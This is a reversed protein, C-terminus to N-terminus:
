LHVPIGIQRIPSRTSARRRLINTICFCRGATLVSNTPLTGEYRVTDILATATSSRFESFNEATSTVLNCEPASAPQGAESRAEPHVQSAGGTLQPLAAQRTPVATDDQISLDRRGGGLSRRGTRRSSIRPEGVCEVGARHCTPCPRQM